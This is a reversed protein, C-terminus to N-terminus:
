SLYGALWNVNSDDTTTNSTGTYEIKTDGKYENLGNYVYGTPDIPNSETRYNLYYVIAFSNDPQKSPILLKNINIPQQGQQVMKLTCNSMNPFYIQNNNNDYYRYVYQNDQKLKFRGKLKFSYATNADPREGYNVTTKRTTKLIYLTDTTNSVDYDDALNSLNTDTIINNNSDQFAYTYNSPATFRLYILVDLEVIIYIDDRFAMYYDYAYYKTTLSNYPDGSENNKEHLVRTDVHAITYLEYYYLCPTVDFIYYDNNSTHYTYRVRNKGSWTILPAQGIASYIDDDIITEQPIASSKKFSTITQFNTNLKFECSLLIDNNNLTIERFLQQNSYYDQGAEITSTTLVIKSDFNTSDLNKFVNNEFNSSPSWSYIWGGQTQVHSINLNTDFLWPHLYLTLTDKYEYDGNNYERKALFYTNYNGGESLSFISSTYDNVNSLERIPFFTNYLYYKGGIKFLVGLTYKTDINAINLDNITLNNNIDNSLKMCDLVIINKDFSNKNFVMRYRDEGVSYKFWFEKRDATQPIYDYNYRNCAFASSNSCMIAYKENYFYQKKNNKVEVDFLQQANHNYGDFDTLRYKTTPKYYSTVKSNFLQSLSSIGQTLDPFMKRLNVDNSLAGFGYNIASKDSDTLSEVKNIDYPKNKSWSNIKNSRCLNGLDYCSDGEQLTNKVTGIDVSM